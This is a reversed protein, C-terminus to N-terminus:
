EAPVTALSAQIFGQKSYDYSILRDPKVRIVVPDYNNALGAALRRANEGPMYKEFIAIRKEVVNEHDLEARGYAIVGKWPPAQNDILLTVSPNQRINTVKHTMEQTGLLFEGNEYKFFVPAIHITGDLNHTGLRALPSENLFAILEDESFPPMQPYPNM